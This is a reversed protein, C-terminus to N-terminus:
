ESYRHLAIAALTSCLGLLALKLLAPSIDAIGGNHLFLQLFAELGWAMPSLEALKQMSAPMIFSPVMIGGIAALVINGLGSLMTAQEFTRAVIAVFIALGLAAGSLCFCLLILASSSGNLELQDGGLLPVLYVGALLMAAIQLQNVVFYPVFKGAILVFPPVALTRLRAHMGLQRERIFTASFPVSIFFVAFILWAPVNQQVATPRSTGDDRYAHIVSVELAIEGSPQIEASELVHLIRLGTMINQIAATFLAEDRLDIKPGVIVEIPQGLGEEIFENLRPGIAIAFHYTGARVQEISNKLLLKRTPVSM